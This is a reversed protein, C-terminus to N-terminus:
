VIQMLQQHFDDNSLPSANKVKTKYTYITNISYDLLIAIQNSDNIGLRILAFIRLEANLLEGNKPTIQKDPSLLANFRPIFNPFIHLFITDFRRYFDNRLTRVDAYQPIHLLDDWRKEQARKKVYRQYKELKSYVSSENCLFTAICEEKISNAEALRQNLLQLKHEAAIAARIRNYLVLLLICLVTLVAYLCVNLIRIRHNHQQQLLLQQQEIIPLIKSVSLQRHRANYFTADALAQQIYRAARPTDGAANLRQAIIGLAVAEKTCSKLDAVAALVMYHDSLATEGMRDYVFGMSSYAIARQHESITSCALVRKFREIASLNEAQKMAYLAATAWYRVTDTSAIYRLAEESQRHGESIYQMGLQGHTYDAMDYLLRAYHIHYEARLNSDLTAPAIDEFVDASGKFLGSSLYLFASKIRAQALLNKNGIGMAEDTLKAVYLTATDYSYSEYAETLALYRDYPSLEAQEIARITEQKQQEYLHKDSLAADLLQLDQASFAFSLISVHLLLFLHIKRMTFKKKKCLSVAKKQYQWFEARM